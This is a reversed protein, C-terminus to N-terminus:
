ALAFEAVEVGVGDVFHQGLHAPQGFPRDRRREDLAVAVRRNEVRLRVGHRQRLCELLRHAGIVVGTPVLGADVLGEAAHRHGLRQHPRQLLVNQACVGRYPHVAAACAEGVDDVVEAGFLLLLPRHKGCFAAPARGHHEGLRVGARVDAGAPGFRDLLVVTGPVDVADLPEDGGGVGAVEVLVDDVQHQGAWLAGAGAGLSQRQEEYGLEQEVELGALEALTVACEHGVDLM